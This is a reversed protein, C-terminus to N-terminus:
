GLYGTDTGKCLAAVKDCVIRPAALCDSARGPAGGRQLQLEAPYRIGETICCPSLKAERSPAPLRITRWTVPSLWRSWERDRTLDVHGALLRASATSNLRVVLLVHILSNTCPPCKIWVAAGSNEPGLRHYKKFEQIREDCKAVLVCRREDMRGLCKQCPCGVNAVHIVTRWLMSPPLSVGVM